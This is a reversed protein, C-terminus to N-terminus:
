GTNQLGQAIGHVSAILAEELGSDARNGRRWRDLLDLQTFSMPDVYPNRLRISRRLTPDRDLLEDQEKLTCVLKRTLEFEREIIPFIEEGLPGALGAYHRAIDLDAKSMAMEVDELLTALFPWDRAMAALERTSFEGAAQELGSGLGFWGPLAHRSQGWAFVWPIARLAEIGQGSKRSAPRSGLRMREIVDVPTALRFYEAFGSHGYVLDRYTKRSTDAVQRIVARWQEPDRDDRRPVLSAKLVAGTMQELNRLAIPRLGYKRHIVEGQETLRLYGAVSGAPAALIARHTKGGGRSITGGRGHFLALRIERREFIAVLDRQAEFLSWRSAVLGGDKNSDSYGLMVVQRRDRKDLHERYEPDALLHDMADAASELDGVTEFLPAIDLRSTDLGCARALWGAAMVDAPNRTMSIILTQISGPGFQRHAEVAGAFLASVPHEAADGALEGAPNKKLRDLRDAWERGMWQRDGLALGVAEHLDDSDVRLDLAAMHFGFIRVRRLLRKLPFLGAHEGRNEALSRAMIELDGALESASDYAPGDDEVSSNVTARIRAELFRCYQRYPMDRHRDPLKRDVVPMRRRYDGLREDLSASFRVRSSTQSLLHALHTVEHLYRGLVMRRQEKLTELVTDPGVSPNGDMDGGVWSGFRLMEGPLWDRAGEPWLRKVQAELEEHFNPAIDYLVDSLYFLVREAEDAVTPRVAPQDDTQWSSTLETRIRALIRQIESEPLSADLREVLRRAMQQEKQLITRRTAETPHATFVPEIRLNELLGSLETFSVGAAKLETLISELSGPQPESSQRQYDRRRRIRHVKEALNVAQFWAAFGRVLDRAVEPKLGSCCSELDASTLAGERRDIAAVRASEVRDFLTQGCQEALMKGVLEGLRSVDERLAEHEPPFAIQERPM